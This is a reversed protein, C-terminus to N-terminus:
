ALVVQTHRCRRSCHKRYFVALQEFLVHEVGANLRRIGHFQIRKRGLAGLQDSVCCNNSLVAYDVFIRGTHAQTKGNCCTVRFRLFALDVQPRSLMVMECIGSGEIGGLVGM